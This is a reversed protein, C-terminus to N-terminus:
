RRGAPTSGSPRGRSPPASLPDEPWHHKPYRGRMESRVQAYANTWFSELDQTVALPRGAPSLLEVRLKLRGKALPPLSRAGFLEQLKVRLVPTDGSQYDIEIASGSPVEIREPLLQELARQLTAPLLSRLASAMDIEALHQRRTRGYLFPKLWTELSKSLAADSVDPWSGDAEIRRMLAVRSQLSRARHSWPLSSLGLSRVGEVMAQAVDEPDADAFPKEELILADLRREQKASVAEARRNWYVSSRTEIRDGFLAEITEQRIPAALFIRADAAQGDTTAVALFTERALADSEEIRAGQGNALRLYGRRDRAQAIRDSYALALLAGPDGADAGSEIGAIKRIQGAALRARALRPDRKLLSLRSALSADEVGKLIDREQLIAAIDAALRGEGRAKGIIVMHALRPHLPLKAVQKGHETIRGEGDIATLRTLLDKAQSMAGAPPADILKLRRADGIGWHALELAFSALDAQLIEATDHPALALTEEDRWLRYCVGPGLRGARGRRQEAAAASVRVTDLRTM